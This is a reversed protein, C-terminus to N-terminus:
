QVSLMFGMKMIASEPARPLLSWIRWSAPIRPQHGLRGTLNDLRGDLGIETFAQGHQLVEDGGVAGALPQGIRGQFRGVRSVQGAPQGVHGLITRDVSCSQPVWTPTSTSGRMSPPSTIWRSSSRIRPRTATSSM